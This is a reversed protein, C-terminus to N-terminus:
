QLGTQPIKKLLAVYNIAMKRKIAKELPYDNATLILRDVSMFGNETLEKEVEEISKYLNIHDIAPANIPVHVYLRGNNSLVNGIKQLMIEPYELHELVESLCVFDYKRDFNLNYFNDCIVHYSKTEHFRQKLFEDTMRCSTPSIDIAHYEQFSGLAIADAFYKGHGPGIELYLGGGSPTNSVKGKFWRHIKLHNEWIYGSLHLGLMYQIMYEENQYVINEVERFTNYRYRTGGNELFYKTENLTEELFFLYSDAIFEMPYKTLFFALTEDFEQLEADTWEKETLKSIYKKQLPSTATVRSLFGEVNNM